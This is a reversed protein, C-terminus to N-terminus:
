DVVVLGVEDFFVECNVFYCYVVNFLVGVCCIVECLVVVEIGGSCVMELGKKVFVEYFYGYYYM